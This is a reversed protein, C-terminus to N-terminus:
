EHRRKGGQAYKQNRYIVRLNRPAQDDATDGVIMDYLQKCSAGTAVGHCVREM